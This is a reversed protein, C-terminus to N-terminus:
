SNSELVESYNCLNCKITKEDVWSLDGMCDPTPCAVYKIDERSLSIM